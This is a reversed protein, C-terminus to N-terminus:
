EDGPSFFTGDNGVNKLEQEILDAPIEDTCDLTVEGIFSGDDMERLVDKLDADPHVPSTASLVTVIFTTKFYKREETM